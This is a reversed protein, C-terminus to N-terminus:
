KAFQRGKDHAVVAPAVPRAAALVVIIITIAETAATATPEAIRFAM